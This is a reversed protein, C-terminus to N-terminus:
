TFLLRQDFGNSTKAVHDPGLKIPLIITITTGQGQSSHISIKGRYQNEIVHKAFLLGVGQNQPKSSFGPKAFFQRTLWNMGSGLDSLHIVVTKQRQYCSIVVIRNRRQGYAEYANHILCSLAEQFYFVPGALRIGPSIPIYAVLEQQLWPQHLRTIVEQLATKLGFSGQPTKSSQSILLLQRVHEANLRAQTLFDKTTQLDPQDLQTLCLELNILLASLPNAIAHWFFVSQPLYQHSNATKKPWFAKLISHLYRSRNKVLRSHHIFFLWKKPLWPM